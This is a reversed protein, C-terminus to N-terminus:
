AKKAKAKTRAKGKRTARVRTTSAVKRPAPARMPTPRAHRPEYIGLKGGGPLTVQTLVGWSMTRPDSCPVGRKKLNRTLAELDDTMLYLEHADNQEGPHVAVEAPPLGVILWGGGADVSRLGLVDKLFARDRDADRSFIISHAGTIM